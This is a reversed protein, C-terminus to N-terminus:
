LFIIKLFLQSELLHLQQAIQSAVFTDSYMGLLAHIEKDKKEIVSQCSEVLSEVTLAGSKLEEHLQQVTKQM